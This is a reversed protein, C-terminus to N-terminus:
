MSFSNILNGDKLEWTERQMLTCLYSLKRLQIRSSSVFHRADPPVVAFPCPSPPNVCLFPRHSSFTNTVDPLTDPSITNTYRPLCFPTQLREATLCYAHFITIGGPPVGEAAKMILPGKMISPSAVCNEASSPAPRGHFGMGPRGVLWRRYRSSKRRASAYTPVYMYM